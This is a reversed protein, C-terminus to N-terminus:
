GRKIIRRILVGVKKVRDGHVRAVLGVLISTLGGATATLYKEAVEKDSEKEAKKVEEIASEAVGTKVIDFQDRPLLQYGTKTQSVIGTVSVLNGLAFLKKDIGAGRKFYVKMEETGDDVYMYTTKLETIEGHVSILAGEYPEGVDLMDVAVPQPIGAHNVVAIDSKQSMKLRTEGSVDSLEGVVEVVDGIALKPFNKKSMYVQLGQVTSSIEHTEPVIYFYQTTFVGPLVAVVGRVRVRDGADEDRVKALTTDILPKVKSKSKSATKTIKIGKVQKPATINNAEGPTPNSTWVWEGVDNKVYAVGEVVDDFPVSVIGSNDPNLLRVEDNTNNLALKTDQRGFVLYSKAVIITGEPITYARSGGDEDDLKLGSIDIDEDMPNYLEIFETNDSGEPNPVIESIEIRNADVSGGVGSVGVKGGVTIAVNKKAVSEHADTVTLTVTFVGEKMFRHSVVDGDDTEGDGFDWAFQMKDGDPDTTDSADFQVSAGPDVSTDTDIVIVPPKNDAEIKNKAGSTIKKTFFWENNEDRAYSVNEKASGTYEAGDIENGSADKLIVTDGGTNNLAIGTQKRLFVLYGEPAIRGQTINYPKKSSDSLTWGILDVTEKGSNFLEIFETEADNGPPNPYIENLKIAGAQASVPQRIVEEGHEIVSIINAKGKTITDTLFFDYRDHNSDPQASSARALSQPDPPALANDSVNGDDWTGYTMADIVTGNPAILEIHDGSNNLSGKPSEIVILGNVAITGSLTTKTESGDEVWWGSLDIVRTSMNRLEIFESEGDAPDAVLENILVEGPNVPPAPTGTGGGGGTPPPLEAGPRPTMHNAAGATPTITRQFDITDTNTDRGDPTRAVSEAKEVSPANNEKAGDDWDGYSMDDIIAGAPNKLVVKDGSNNLKSSSLSIHIFGHSPLTGSATAIRGVGDELMWNTLDVSSTDPNYLEIWEAEDTNPYPYVENILVTSTSIPNETSTPSEGGDQAAAIHLNMNSLGIAGGLDQVLLTVRYDGVASYTHTIRPELSNLTIKEGADGFDWEYLQIGGDPDQSADAQFSLATGPTRNGEVSFQPTPLQNDVINNVEPNGFERQIHWYNEKGPTSATQGNEAGHPRWNEATYLPIDMDVRELSKNATLPIYTFQEATNALWKDSKLAILEGDSSLATWSSDFVTNTVDPFLSVFQTANNAIIAYMGPEIHTDQRRSEPALTLTHNVGGEYLKWDTMDVSQDSRNYVEIWQLAANQACKQPCIETIVVNSGAGYGINFLLFLGGFVGIGALLLLSTNHKM